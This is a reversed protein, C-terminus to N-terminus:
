RFGPAARPPVENIERPLALPFLPTGLFLAFIPTKAVQETNVAFGSFSLKRKWRWSFPLIHTKIWEEIWLCNIEPFFNTNKKLTRINGRLLTLIHTKELVPVTEGECTLSERTFNQPDSCAEAGRRNIVSVVSIPVMVMGVVQHSTIM